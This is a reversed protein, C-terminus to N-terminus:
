NGMLYAVNVDFRGATITGVTITLNLRGAATLKLYTAATFVPIIPQQTDIAYTAAATAAKLSVNSSGASTGLSISGAGVCAVTVDVTGGIIIANDPLTPSNAPIISSVAGGDVTFDYTMKANGVAGLGGITLVAGGFPNWQPVTRTGLNVYWVGSTSDLLKAGLGAKGFYTGAAGSVPVGAFVYWGADINFLSKLSAWVNGRGFQENGPM